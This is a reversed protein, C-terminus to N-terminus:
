TKNYLSSEALFGGRSRQLIVESGKRGRRILRVEGSIVLLMNRVRDGTRFLVQGADVDMLEAHIRLQAPIQALAPQAEILAEWNM